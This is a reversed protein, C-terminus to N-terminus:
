YAAVNADHNPTEAALMASTNGFRRFKGAAGNPNMAYGTGPTVIRASPGPSRSCIPPTWEDANPRAPHLEASRRHTVAAGNRKM